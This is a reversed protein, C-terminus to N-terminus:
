GARVDSGLGKAKLRHGRAVGCARRFRVIHEIRRRGALTAVVLGAGAALLERYHWRPVGFVTKWQPSPERWTRVTLSHEWRELIHSPGTKWSPVWHGIGAAPLYLGRIGRAKLTDMLLNEEGVIPGHPQGLGFRQDFGGAEVVLGADCAWNAGVFWEKEELFRSAPGWDLGKVSNPAYPLLDDAVPAGEYQSTIPGGYFCARGHARYAATYTALWDSPVTVDDDTFILLRGKAAAIGANRAASLGATPCSVARLPLQGAAAALVQATADTSGNDVAIIEWAGSPPSGLHRFGGLTVALRAANNRTSLVISVACPAATM